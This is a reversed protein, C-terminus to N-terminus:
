EMQVAESWQRKWSRNRRNFEVEVKICSNRRTEVETRDKIRVSVVVAKHDVESGFSQFKRSRSSEEAM